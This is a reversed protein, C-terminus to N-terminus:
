IKSFIYVNENIKLIKNLNKTDWNIELNKRPNKLDYPYNEHNLLYKCSKNKIAFPCFQRQFGNIVLSPVYPLHYQINLSTNLV